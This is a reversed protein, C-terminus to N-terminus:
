KKRLAPTNKKITYKAIYADMETEKLVVEATMWTIILKVQQEQAAVGVFEIKAIYNAAHLAKLVVCYIHKQANSPKLGPIDFATPLNYTISQMKNDHADRISDEIGILIEKVKENVDRKYSYGKTLQGIPRIKPEM